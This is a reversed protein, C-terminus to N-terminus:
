FCGAPDKRLSTPIPNLLIGPQRKLAMFFRLFFFFHHSPLGLRPLLLLIHNGGAQDLERRRRGQVGVGAPTDLAAGPGGSMGLGCPRAPAAACVRWPDTSVGLSWVRRSCRAQGGPFCSFCLHPEAPDISSTGLAVPCPFSGTGRAPAPFVRSVCGPGCVNGTDMCCLGTVFVPKLPSFMSIFMSRLM